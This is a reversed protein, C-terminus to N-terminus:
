GSVIGSDWDGISGISDRKDSLLRCLIPWLCDRMCVADLQSIALRDGLLFQPTRDCAINSRSFPAFAAFLVPL